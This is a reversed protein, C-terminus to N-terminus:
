ETSGQGKLNKKKNIYEKPGMGYQKIFCKDFYSHSNFGVEFVIQSIALKGELLFQLSKKLRVSRIFEHVSQSTLTKIKSYLVTRSIGMTKCISLADIEPNSINAEIYAVLNKLFEEDLKNLTLNEPYLPDNSLINQRTREYLKERNQIFNLIVRILLEKKVPKTLYVDAGAEYGSIQSNEESQSTLLIVPIHSTSTSNKIERCFQLGNMVPMMLDSIIATPQVALATKLGEAGNEAEFIEFTDSLLLKLYVRMENNDEVILIKKGKIKILKDIPFTEWFDPSPNQEEVTDKKQEKLTKLTSLSRPLTIYFSSGKGPESEVRIQGKNIQVFERTIILGLGTGKEGATGTSINNKDISFLKEIQEKGMGVGDDSISIIIHDGEEASDVRVTGNYETFKISNSILNRVVTDTMNYDAFVRHTTNTHLELQIHKNMSQQEHLAANKQLIEGISFDTPTYEINKSQTRSWNLLNILLDYVANCSNYISDLNEQIEKKGLKFFNNKMFDSIGTLASVPNKLDHALISFLHDKTNNIKRLEDVTSELVQNQDTIHKQQALIKDSQRLIEENSVELREKQLKIEDNQEILFANAENLEATRKEVEAKLFRNRKKIYSVRLYFFGTLSGSFLLFLFLEFWWTRWWPPLIVITLTAPVTNWEGDANTYKIKLVYTGPDLNTFSVKRETKLNIWQDNLGELQYAYQTKSPSYFNLSVFEISFFSQRPALILQHTLSLVEKLPSGKQGPAQLQNNIYLDTFYFYSPINIPKISDPHFVNFGQPGGFYLLGNKSLLAAKQFFTNGQLGDSATYRKVTHTSQDFAILGDNSSIWLRNHQDTAIAKMTVPLNYKETFRIFSRSKEDFQDLGGYESIVWIKGTKDETVMNVSNSSISSATATHEFQTLKKGDFVFVGSYTSIWLRKRSDRFLHNIWTPDHMQFPFLTNNKYNIFRNRKLDYATLGEGHTGIWVLSDDPLVAKVDNYILSNNDSPNHLYSKVYGTLPDFRMVGGGWTGIWLKGYQDGKIDNIANSSLQHSASTYVFFSNRTPNFQLLGGRDTGMWILGRNDEYFCTITSTELGHVVSPDQLYNKFANKQNNTYFLGNGSTAFWTNGFNDELISSISIFRNRDNTHVMGTLVTPTPTQRNIYYLPEREVGIWITQKKDEYLCNIADQNVSHNKSFNHYQTVVQGRNNLVSIGKDATGVWINNAHDALISKIKNSSVTHNNGEQHRFLTFTQTSPSFKKVGGDFTGAWINDSADITMCFIVDDNTQNFFWETQKKDYDYKCLGDSTGLWLRHHRDERIVNVPTKEDQRRIRCKIFGDRARDYLNLGGITGIWLRKKSDEFISYIINNDLSLANKEDHFYKKFSYGDWRFLGDFSALWLFGYSDQYVYQYNNTQLGNETSYNYINYNGTQAKLFLVPL